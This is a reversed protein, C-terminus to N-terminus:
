CPPISWTAIARRCSQQHDLVRRKGADGCDRSVVHLQAFRNRCVERLHAAAYRLATGSQQISLSGSTVAEDPSTITSPPVM